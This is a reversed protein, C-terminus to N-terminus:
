IKTEAQSVVAGIAPLVPLSAKRSKKFFITRIEHTELFGIIKLDIKDMFNQSFIIIDPLSARRRIEPLVINNKIFISPGTRITFMKEQAWCRRHRATKPFTEPRSLAGDAHEFIGAAPKDTDVCVQVKVDRDLGSAGFQNEL